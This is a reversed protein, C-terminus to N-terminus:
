CFSLAYYIRLALKTVFARISTWLRAIGTLERGVVTLPLSRLTVSAERLASRIGRAPEERRQLAAALDSTYARTVDEAGSDFSLAVIYTQNKGWGQYLLPEDVAAECPDVHVWRSRGRVRPVSVEVWVHDAWDAVWRVRYGLLRLFRYMLMSYEGCRGRRTEIVRDLYNFRPFRTLSQCKKCSYIETRGAMHVREAASPRIYGVFDNNRKNGCANCNDYYYPFISRFWVALMKLNSLTREEDLSRSFGLETVSVNHEAIVQERLFGCLIEDSKFDELLLEMRRVYGALTSRFSSDGKLLELPHKTQSILLEREWLSKVFDQAAPDELDVRSERLAISSNLRMPRCFHELSERSTGISAMVTKNLHHYEFLTFVSSKNVALSRHDLVGTLQLHASESASPSPSEARMEAPQALPTASSSALSPLVLWGASFRRLFARGPALLLLCCLSIVLTFSNNRGHSAM